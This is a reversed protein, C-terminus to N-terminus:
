AGTGPATEAALATTGLATAEAVTPYGETELLGDLERRLRWVLGPGQFVLASYLQVASAGARLMAMVDAAGAIGGCGVLAIRDSLRERFARVGDVAMPLLPRGSLGGTEGALKPDLGAPRAITTNSVVLADIGVAAVVGAIADRDAATLDPAVKVWLDCAPATAELAERVGALLRRLPDADQLARLGQTNPSSVNITVFDVRPALTEVLLRYDRAPDDSDKNPGLNLGLAGPLPRKLRDLRRAVADMGDSNLGYRNVVAQDDFSRFV